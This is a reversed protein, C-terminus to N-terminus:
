RILLLSNHAFSALASGQPPGSIGARRAALDAALDAALVFQRQKWLKPRREETHNPPDSATAHTENLGARRRHPWRSRRVNSGGVSILAGFFFLGGRPAWLEKDLVNDLFRQRLTTASVCAALHM